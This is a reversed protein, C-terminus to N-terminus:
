YLAYGVKEEKEFVESRPHNKLQFEETAYRIIEEDTDTDAM